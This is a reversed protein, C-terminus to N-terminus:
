EIISTKLENLSFWYKYYNNFPGQSGEFIVWIIFLVMFEIHKVYEITVM